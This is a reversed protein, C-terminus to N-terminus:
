LLIIVIMLQHECKDYKDCYSISVSKNCVQLCCDILVYVVERTQTDKLNLKLVKEFADM